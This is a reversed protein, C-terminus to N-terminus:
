VRLMLYLLGGIVLWMPASLCAGIMIGEPPKLQYAARCGSRSSPSRNPELGRCDAGATPRHKVSTLDSMASGLDSSQDKIM